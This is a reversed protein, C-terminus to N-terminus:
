ITHWQYCPIPILSYSPGNQTWKRCARYEKRPLYIYASRWKFIMANNMRCYKWVYNSCFTNLYLWDHIDSNRQQCRLVALSLVYFLIQRLLLFNKSQVLCITWQSITFIFGTYKLEALVGILYNLLSHIWATPFWLPPTPPFFLHNLNNLLREPTVTFNFPM